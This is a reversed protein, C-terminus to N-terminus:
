ATLVPLPAMVEEALRRAVGQPYPRPPSLVVHNRGARVLATVMARTAAQDDYSVPVQVSRVIEAPDRGPGARHADLVRARM